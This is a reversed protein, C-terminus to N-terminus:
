WPYTTNVQFHFRIFYADSTIHINLSKFPNVQSSLVCPANSNKFHLLHHDPIRFPPQKTPPRHTTANLIPHFTPFNSCMRQLIHIVYLIVLSLQITTMKTSSHNITEENYAYGRTHQYDLYRLIITM